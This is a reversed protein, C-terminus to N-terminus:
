KPFSKTPRAVFSCLSNASILSRNFFYYAPAVNSNLLLIDIFLNATMITVISAALIAIPLSKGLTSVLAAVIMAICLVLTMATLLLSM